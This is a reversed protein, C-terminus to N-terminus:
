VVEIYNDTQTGTEVIDDAQAGTETIEQVESTEIVDGVCTATIEVAGTQINTDHTTIIGTDLTAIHPYSFQIPRGLYVSGGSTYEQSTTFRVDYRKSITVAYEAVNYYFALISIALGSGSPPEFDGGTRKFSFYSFGNISGIFAPSDFEVTTGDSLDIRYTNGADAKLRDVIESLNTESFLAEYTDEPYQYDMSAGLGTTDVPPSWTVGGTLVFQVGSLAYQNQIHRIADFENKIGSVDALKQPYENKIGYRKYLLHGATWLLRRTSSDSIGTVWGKSDDYFDQEVNTIVIKGNAYTVGIECYIRTTDINSIAPRGNIRFKNFLLGGDTYMDLVNSTSERGHNDIYGITSTYKLMDYKIDKSGQKSSNYQLEYVPMKLSYDIVGSLDESPYGLGWGDSPVSIGVRSYDQLELTNLYAERTDSVTGGSSSVRGNTTIYVNSTNYTTPRVLFQKMEVTLDLESAIGDQSTTVDYLTYITLGAALEYDEFDGGSLINIDKGLVDYDNLWRYKTNLGSNDFEVVDPFLNDLKREVSPSAIIVTQEISVIIYSVAVPAIGTPTETATFDSRQTIYIATPINSPDFKVSYRTAYRVLNTKLNGNDNKLSQNLTMPTDINDRDALGTSFTLSGSVVTDYNTWVGNGVYRYGEIASEWYQGDSSLAFGKEELPPIFSEGINDADLISVTGASSDDIRSDLYSPFDYFFGGAEYQLTDFAVDSGYPSYFVDYEVARLTVTSGDVIYTNGVEDKINMPLIVLRLGWYTETGEIYEIPTYTGTSVAISNEAEVIFYDYTSQFDAIDSSSVISEPYVSRMEIVTKDQNMVVFKPFLGDGIVTNINKQGEDKVMKVRVSDGYVMPAYSDGVRKSLFSSYYNSLHSVNLQVNNGEEPISIIVGRRFLYETVGDGTEYIEILKGNLSLGNNNLRTEVNASKRINIDINTYKQENGSMTIDVSERVSTLWDESMASFGSGDTKWEIVGSLMGIEADDLTSGTYIRVIYDKKIM